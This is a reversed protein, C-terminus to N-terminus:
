KTGPVGKRKGSVNSLSSYMGTVITKAVVAKDGVGPLPLRPLLVVFAAARLLIASAFVLHYHSIWSPLGSINQLHHQWFTACYGGVITGLMGALGFVVLFMAIYATRKVNPFGKLQMYFNVQDIGPWTLGGAIVIVPILWTSGPHVLIWWAPIFIQCFSSTALVPKPGFRDIAKGWFPAVWAMTITPLIFLLFNARSVSMNLGHSATTDFCFRWTFPGMMMYAIWTIVTYLAFSCFMKDRWPITILEMWTPPKADVPRPIERVPIFSLIDAAGMVAAFSFVVAYMWGHGNVADLLIAMGWAAVVMSVMGIRARYGFFIGAVQKPVIDSMWTTWGAGGYNAAIASLLVLVSVLVIQVTTHHGATVPFFLPIAAVGLWALRHFTVLYLFNRKTRGTREVVYSGLLQFLVGISGISMILGYTSDDTRLYKTLFSSFVAGTTIAFFTSGFIWAILCYRLGVRVEHPSYRLKSSKGTTSDVRHM